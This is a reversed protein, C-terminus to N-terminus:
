EKAPLEGPKHSAAVEGPSPGEAPRRPRGKPITLDAPFAMLEATKVGLLNALWVLASLTLNERGTEIRRLYRVSVDGREAMQEQTLGAQRRLEAM